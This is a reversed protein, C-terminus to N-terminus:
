SVREGLSVSCDVVGFRQRYTASVGESAPDGRGPIARCANVMTKADHTKRSFMKSFRQNSFGSNQQCNKRFESSGLLFLGFINICKVRPM